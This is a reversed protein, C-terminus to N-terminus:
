LNEVPEFEIGVVGYKKQDEVSYFNNLVELLEDKTMSADALVTIDFDDLLSKFSDYKWLVVAKACFSGGNDNYFEITDSIHIKQRKEDFLRLEIRKTGNRIYDFYKTQLHMKHITMVVIIADLCLSASFDFIHYFTVCTPGDGLPLAVPKPGTM